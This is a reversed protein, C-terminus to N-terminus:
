ECECVDEPANKPVNFENNFQNSLSHILKIDLFQLSSRRRTRHQQEESTFTTNDNPFSEKIEHQEITDDIMQNEHNDKIESPYNGSPHQLFNNKLAM